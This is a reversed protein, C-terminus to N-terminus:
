VYSVYPSAKQIKQKLYCFRPKTITTQHKVDREVNNLDYRYLSLTIIFPEICHLAMCDHASNGWWHYEPGPELSMFGPASVM